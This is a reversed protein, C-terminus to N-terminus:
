NLCFQLFFQVNQPPGGQMGPKWLPMGKVAQRAEKDLDENVSKKVKVDGVNRTRDVVISALVKREIEKDAASEPYVLTSSKYKMVAEQVGTYNLMEEMVIFTDDRRPSKEPLVQGVSNPSIFLMLLLFCYNFKMGIIRRFFSRM